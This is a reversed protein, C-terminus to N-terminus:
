LISVGHHNFGSVIYIRLAGPRANHRIEASALITSGYDIPTASEIPATGIIFFLGSAKVSPQDMDRLRGDSLLRAHLLMFAEVALAFTNVALEDEAWGL